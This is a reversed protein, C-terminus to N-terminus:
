LIKGNLIRINKVCFTGDNNVKIHAFGHGYDNCMPSYDPLLEALSFTSWCTYFEGDLNTTSAEGGKHTHSCIMSQKARLLLTRAPSAPSTATRFIYHGHHISLKGAKTIQKDGILTVKNNILNLRTELSMDDDGFLDSLIERHLNLWREYRLDHNGLHYYIQVTPFAKRLGEIFQRAADIEDKTSRKKPDKEYKSLQHCDILDGNIFITNVKNERGYNLACEIAEPIHYPIHLDPLLLINNNVKPLIFPKRKEAHSPPIGYPNLRSFDTKHIVASKVEKRLQNGSAGTYSRVFSRADEENKFELPHNHVMARAIARKSSKPFKKLYKLTLEGKRSKPM